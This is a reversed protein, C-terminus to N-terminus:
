TFYRYRPVNGKSGTAFRQVKGEAFLERLAIKALADSVPLGLFLESASKAEPIRALLEEKAAKRSSEPLAKKEDNTSEPKEPKMADFEAKLALSVDDSRRLGMAICRVYDRTLGLKDAVRKFLEEEKESSREYRTRHIGDLPANAPIMRDIRLRGRAPRATQERIEEGHIQRLRQAINAYCRSCMGCGAHIRETTECVLCGFREFYIMWKRQDTVLQLRKLEYAVQRSRFFPEFLLAEKDAVIEAAMQIAMRKIETQMAPLRLIEGPSPLLEMRLAKSM